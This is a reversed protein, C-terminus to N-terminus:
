MKKLACGYGPQWIEQVLFKKSGVVTNSRLTDDNDIASGFNWSCVDANECPSDGHCVSLSSDFVWSPTKLSVTPNTIIEALEHTYINVLSDGGINHNITTNDAFAACNEPYPATSTDGMVAFKYYARSGGTLYFGTHYGCWNTNWSSPQPPNGLNISYSFDGRFIVMYIANVDPVLVATNFLDQLMTRITSTTVVLGKATPQYTVSKVFNITSTTVFTKTGNVIPQYYYSNLINFLSSSKLNAAFYDVLTTTNKQVPNSFDGFYINYLNVNGTMVPGGFYQIDGNSAQKSPMTTITNTPSKSLTPKSTTTPSYSPKVSSKCTPLTTPRNTPRKSPNKSPLPTPKLTTPTASSPSITPNTPQQSPRLTPNSPRQSPSLTPNTPRESPPLSPNTPQQSPRLTPNSPRQSPSLTPNTPQESPPLSPNSPRQSPRFSPSKSISCTPINTSLKAPVVTPLATPVIRSPLRSPVLSPIISVANNSKTSPFHHVSLGGSGNDNTSIIEFTSLPNSIMGQTSVKRSDTRKKFSSRPSSHDFIGM